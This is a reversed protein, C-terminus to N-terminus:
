CNDEHEHLEDTETCILQFIEQAETYQVEYCADTHSHPATSEECILLLTEKAETLQTTYCTEGHEHPDEAQTCVLNLREQQETFQTTYCTETHIHPEESLECILVQTFCEDGHTHDLIGCAADGALTLGPQRLLWFVNLTVIFSLVLLINSLRKKQIRIWKLNKLSKGLTDRM